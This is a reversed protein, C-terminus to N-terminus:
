QSKRHLEKTQGKYVNGLPREDSILGIKTVTHKSGGRLKGTREGLNFDFFILTGQCKISVSNIM